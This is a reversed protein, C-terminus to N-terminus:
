GSKWTIMDPEDAPSDVADGLVTAVGAVPAAVVVATGLWDEDDVEV